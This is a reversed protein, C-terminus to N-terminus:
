KKSYSVVDTENMPSVLSFRIKATNRAYYLFAALTEVFEDEKDPSISYDTNGMWSKQKDKPTLPAAAPPAGMFSLMLGDVIGKHNLYRLTKWVGQFRPGSFVQNYYDWNFQDPDDNDNVAEWDIEEIVARFLTAGLSDVLLDIAPQVVRSDRYDGKYWWATNINVGLGELHQFKRSGDIRITDTPTHAYSGTMLQVSLFLIAFAKM